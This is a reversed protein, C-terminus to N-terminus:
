RLACRTTFVSPCRTAKAPTKQIARPIEFFEVSYSISSKPAKHLAQADSAHFIDGSFIRVFLGRLQQAERAAKGPDRTRQRRQRHQRRDDPPGNGRVADPREARSRKARRRQKKQVLRQAKKQAFLRNQPMERFVPKASQQEEDDQRQHDGARRQARQELARKRVRHRVFDPDAVGRREARRHKPRVRQADDALSPSKESAKRQRRAAHENRAENEENGRSRQQQLRRVRANRANGPAVRKKKRRTRNAHRPQRREVDRPFECEAPLANKQRQDLEAPQADHRDRIEERM